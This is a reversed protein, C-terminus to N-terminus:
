YQYLISGTALPARIYSYFPSGFIGRFHFASWFNGCMPIRLEKLLLYLARKIDNNCNATEVWDSGRKVFLPLEGHSKAIEIELANLM